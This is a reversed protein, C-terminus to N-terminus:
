VSSAAGASLSSSIKSRKPPRGGDLTSRDREKELLNGLAKPFHAAPDALLKKAEAPRDQPAYELLVASAAIIRVMEKGSLYAAEAEGLQKSLVPDTELPPQLQFAKHAAKATGIAKNMRNVAQSYAPRGPWGLLHKKVRDAAFARDNIWADINPKAALTETLTEIIRLYSDLIDRRLAPLLEKEISATWRKAAPVPFRLQSLVAPALGSDSLLADLAGTANDVGKTLASMAFKVDPKLVFTSQCFYPLAASAYNECLHGLCGAIKNLLTYMNGAASLDYAKVARTEETPASFDVPFSFAWDEGLAIKLKTFLDNELEAPFLWPEAEGHNARKTVACQTSILAEPQIVRKIMDAVAPAGQFASEEGSGLLLVGELELAAAQRKLVLLGCEDLIQLSRKLWLAHRLKEILMYLSVPEEPVAQDEEGPKNPEWSSCGPNEGPAPLALQAVQPRAVAGDCLTIPSCDQSLLDKFAQSAEAFSFDLDGVSTVAYIVASLNCTDQATHERWDNYLEVPPTNLVPKIRLALRSVNAIQGRYTSLMPFGRQLHAKIRSAAASGAFAKDVLLNKLERYCAQLESEAKAPPEGAQPRSSCDVEAAGEQPRIACDVETPRLLFPTSKFSALVGVSHALDISALVNCFVDAWEFLKQHTEEADKEVLLGLAENMLLINERMAKTASMNAIRDANSITTRGTAEDVLLRPMRGDLLVKRAQQIRGFALNNEAVRLIRAEAVAIADAMEMNKSAAKMFTATRSAKLHELARKLDDCNVASANGHHRLLLELSEVDRRVLDFREQPFHKMGEVAHRFQEALDPGAPVALDASTPEAPAALDREFRDEPPAILAEDDEEEEEAKEGEGDRGFLHLLAQHVAAELWVDPKTKFEPSNRSDLNLADLASLADALGEGLAKELAQGFGGALQFLTLKHALLMLTPSPEVKAVTRLASCLRPVNHMWKLFIAVLKRSKVFIRFNKLFTRSILLLDVWKECRDKINSQGEFGAEDRLASLRQQAHTLPGSKASKSWAISSFSDLIKKAFDIQLNLKVALKSSMGFTEEGGGDAPAGCLALLPEVPETLSAMGYQRLVELDQTSTTQLSQRLSHVGMTDRRVERGQLIPSVNPVWVGLSPAGDPGAMQVLREAISHFTVDAWAPQQLDQLSVVAAPAMPFNLIRFALKNSEIRAQVQPLKIQSQRSANEAHLQLVAVFHVTFSDFNAPTSELWGKFWSLPHDHQFCIRWTRHCDYCWIGRGDSYLWKVTKDPMLFCAHVEFIRGCGPCPLREAADEMDPPSEDIEDESAIEQNSKPTRRRQSGRLRGAIKRAPTCVSSPAKRSSSSASQSGAAPVVVSEELAELFLDMGADDWVIHDLIGAESSRRETQPQTQMPEGQEAPDALASACRKRRALMATELRTLILAFV